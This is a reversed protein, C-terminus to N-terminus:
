IYDTIGDTVVPAAINTLAPSSIAPAVPATTDITLTQTATIPSANSAPDVANAFVTNPGNTDLAVTGSAPTATSLDLTWGSAAAVTTYTAGGVTVTVTDGTEASGTLVPAAVNTLAPLSLWCSLSAMRGYWPEWLLYPM